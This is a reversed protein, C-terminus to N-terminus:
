HLLQQRFSSLLISRVNSAVPKSVIRLLRFSEFSSSDHNANRDSDLNIAFESAASLNARRGTPQPTLKKPQAGFKVDPAPGTKQPVLPAPTSSQQPMPPVPPPSFNQQFGNQQPPQGFGTQQPQMQAQFGTMQPQMGQAQQQFGTQNQQQFSQQPQSFQNMGNPQQQPQNFGTPQPQLAPPLMSNIGTQPRFQQFGTQQPQMQPQPRPDAFPSGVANGNIYPQQQFQQPQFGTQQPMMGNPMQGFQGPYGTQQPQMQMQQFARQQIRQM